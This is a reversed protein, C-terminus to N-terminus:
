RLAERLLRIDREIEVLVRKAEAKKAPTTFHGSFTSRIGAMKAGLADFRLRAAPPIDTYREATEPASVPRIPIVRSM